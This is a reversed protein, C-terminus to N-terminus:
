KKGGKPNKPKAKKMTKPTTKPKPKDEMVVRNKKTKVIRANQKPVEDYFMPQEGPDPITTAPKQNVFRFFNKIRKFM